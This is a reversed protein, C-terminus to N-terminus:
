INMQLNQLLRNANIRIFLYIFINSFADFVNFKQKLGNCLEVVFQVTLVLSVKFEDKCINENFM